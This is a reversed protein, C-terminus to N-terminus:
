TAVLDGGLQQRGSIRGNRVIPRRDNPLLGASGVRVAERGVVVRVRVIRLGVGILSSLAGVVSGLGVVLGPVLVWTGFFWFAGGPIVEVVTWCCLFSRLRASCGGLVALLGVILKISVAVRTRGM